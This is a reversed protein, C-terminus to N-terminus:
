TGSWRRFSTATDTTTDATEAPTVASIYSASVRPAIGPSWIGSPAPEVDAPRDLVIVTESDWSRTAGFSTAAAARQIAASSVPFRFSSVM